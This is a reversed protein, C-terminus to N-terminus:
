PRAHRPARRRRRLRDGHGPGRARLEPAGAGSLGVRGAVALAEAPRRPPAAPPQPIASSPACRTGGSATRPWTSRRPATGLVLEPPLSGALKLPTQGGLSVIVGAVSGRRRALEADLVNAVDEATLPEFYLRDSTDYDTSVTEPNCNVMVTEYGADRLAVDVRARLLLRVRNGPRHPEPGLRPHDGRDRESPRVEDEDEYTAYHYPTHAEFEAACTDVTKFTARVGGALRPGARIDTRRREGCCTPWSPTPSASGSPGGALDATASGGAHGAIRAAARRQDAGDPARVLPRHRTRAALEDVAVGRRLAAELEFIRDPTPVAIATSCRRRTSARRSGGRGPGRQARRAGARALAAGEAAVRPLDPRHGDGRGGVADPHGLRM